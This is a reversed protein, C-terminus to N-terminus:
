RKLAARASTTVLAEPAGDALAQLVARAQPTGIRELVEVARFFRLRDGHLGVETLKGHLNELRRRTEASLKGALAKELLPLASEGLQLLEGNAKDRVEFQDDDLQRLLEAVHKVDLPPAPKVRAQIWAVAEGPVAAFDRMAAFGVAADDDALALWWKEMEGPKLVRAPLAPRTIRTVDWVLATADDSASALRKGDPAFALANVSLRHGKLVTLPRATLTDWVHISGDAAALALLGGDPSIAPAARSRGFMGPGMFEDVADAKAVSAPLWQGGFTGRSSGTALEVLAVTGDRNELALCRGEPSFAGQLATVGEPPTLSAVKKGTATELVLITTRVGAQFALVKGDPSFLLKQTSAGFPGGGKGFGAPGGGGFGGKVGMAPGAAAPGADLSRLLKGGPVEYLNIKQQQQADVALAALMKGNPSFVLPRRHLPTMEAELAVTGLEKGTATDFLFADRSKAAQAVAPTAFRSVTVGVRGDPSIVTPTGPQPPLKVTVAGLDKGTAADWTHTTKSDKTVIQRGDPTFGIATLGESHGASPGIEKAAQLDVLQLLRSGGFVLLTKGDPSYVPEGTAQLNGPLPKPGAGVQAVKGIEKGNAWDWIRLFGDGGFVTLHKGDPSLTAATLFAGGGLRDLRRLEKGSPFEWVFLVGDDSVSVVQKGGPVFAAFVITSDHRFRVTGLRAVAGPPLLDGYLDQAAPQGQGAGAALVALLFTCALLIRHRRM